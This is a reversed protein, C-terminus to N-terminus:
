QREKRPLTSQFLSKCSQVIIVVPTAGETPAHISVVLGGYNFLASVRREKRPLTSQFQVWMNLSKTLFHREKRPLTSQFMTTTLFERGRNRDSRGHSRPNFGLIATLRTLWLLREKRPLTSQFGSLRNRQTLM